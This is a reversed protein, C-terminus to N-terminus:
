GREKTREGLCLLSNLKNVVNELNDSIEKNLFRIETIGYAKLYNTRYEDYKIRQKHIEGDLEIALKKDPCYFDVVYNDVSFQRKFKFGLNKRRVVNWFIKEAKTTTKRLDRRRYLMRDASFIQRKQDMSM